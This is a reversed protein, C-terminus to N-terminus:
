AMYKKLIWSLTNGGIRFPVSAHHEKKTEKNRCFSIKIVNKLEFIREM